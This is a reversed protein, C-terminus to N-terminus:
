KEQDAPGTDASVGADALEQEGTGAELEDLFRDIVRSQRADDALAEGIIRSSLETALGGIESRLSVVATRREAEIQRNATEVLRTAEAKAQERAEAVIQAAQANADERIEAAERRARALEEQRESRAAAADEQAQEALALGGEIKAAREDLVANIRPLLFKYFFFGIIVLVVLSWLIDYGPPVFLNPEYEDAQIVAPSQIYQM